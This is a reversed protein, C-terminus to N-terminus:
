VDNVDEDGYSRIGIALSDRFSQPTERYPDKRSVPNRTKYDAYALYETCFWKLPNQKKRSFVFGMIGGWDYRGKILIQFQYLEQMEDHDLIKMYAEFARGVTPAHHCVGRGQISEFELCTGDTFHFVRSVHSFERYPLVTIFKAGFGRAFYCRDIVRAVIKRKLEAYHM